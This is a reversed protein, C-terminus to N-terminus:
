PRCCYFFYASSLLLAYPITGARHSTTSRGRSPWSCLSRPTPGTTSGCSRRRLRGWRWQSWCRLRCRRRPRAGTARPSRIGGQVDGGGCGCWCASDIPKRGEGSGVAGGVSAPLATLSGHIWCLSTEALSSLALHLQLLYPLSVETFGVYHLKLLSSLWSAVLVSLLWCIIRARTRSFFIARYM